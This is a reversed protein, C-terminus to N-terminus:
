RKMFAILDKLYKMQGDEMDNQEMPTRPLDGMIQHEREKKFPQRMM